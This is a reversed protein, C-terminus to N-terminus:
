GSYSMHCTAPLCLTAMYLTTGMLVLDHVLRLFHLSLFCFSLKDLAVEFANWDAWCATDRCHGILVSNYPCTFLAVEFANWDAWFATDRCHGILLSIYPCTFLAVEFANWDAWFATDRRPDAMASAHIYIGRARDVEGLGKELKAYRCLCCAHDIM